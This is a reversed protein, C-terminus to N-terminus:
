EGNEVWLKLALQTGTMESLKLRKEKIGMFTNYALDLVKFTNMLDLPQDEYGGARPMIKNTHWALWADFVFSSGGVNVAAGKFKWASPAIESPNVWDYM